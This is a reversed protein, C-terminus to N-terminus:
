RVIPMQYICEGDVCRQATTRAAAYVIGTLCFLVGRSLRGATSREGNRTCACRQCSAGSGPCFDAGVTALASGTGDAFLTFIVVLFKNRASAGIVREVLTERPRFQPHLYQDLRGTFFFDLLVVGLGILTIGNVLSFLEVRM